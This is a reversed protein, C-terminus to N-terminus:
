PHPIKVLTETGVAAAAGAAAAVAAVDAVNGAGGRAAAAAAAVGVAVAVVGACRVGVREECTSAIKRSLLDRGAACFGRCRPLAAASVSAEAAAAVAVVAAVAAAAVVVAVAAVAAAALAAAVSAAVAAVAAVAVAVAAVAVAAAAAAAIPRVHLCYGPTLGWGGRVRTVEAVKASGRYSQSHPHCTWYTEVLSLPPRNKHGRVVLHGAFEEWTTM